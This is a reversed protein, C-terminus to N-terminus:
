KKDIYEKDCMEIAKVLIRQASSVETKAQIAEGETAHEKARVVVIQATRLFIDTQYWVNVLGFKEIRYDIQKTGILAHCEVKILHQLGDGTGRSLEKDAKDLLSVCEIIADKIKSYREDLCQRAFVKLVDEGNDQREKKM